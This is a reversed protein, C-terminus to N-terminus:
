DTTTTFNITADHRGIPLGNAITNVTITVPATDNVNPLTGTGGSVTLWPETVTVDYSIPGPGLNELTYVISDPVFPGGPDGVSSLSNGPTVQLGVAGPFALSPDGLLNYMEFYRRTTSGSGMQALYRMRTENWVTGVESPVNDGDDYIVDFLRKELIDDETWYSNVSSGYIAAAGKNAARSWTETFCETVTYTGTICAFSCVFPYMDANTLNNVDSQSFVPGDAWSYTGGHGSYIGFFRGDNFANRVQQTTANYTHCYLKDSVINNPDMYNSIVWNHTGESVTYNDESAMFVARKVYDPDSLPGDEYYLTKNVIAQVDGSSRVSFRGLAIDAYWDSAGDMCSYPLDTAPSGAGGGTWNPITNTDGVLLVYDPPSAGNYESEIYTKITTANVSTDVYTTVNFGQAGKATAFSAIDAAYANAVVILYNGSGRVRAQSVLDANLVVRHLGPLATLGGEPFNGGAFSVEASLRPWWTLEGAAPNYAVPRIELLCLRQGRVLGLETVVVRQIPGGADLAYAAQDFQFDANQLAGPIKPIPPQVPMLHTPLGAAALDVVVPAGEQAAVTVVAGLPAVFLRRLVPIAPAGIQGYVSADPWGVRLFRGGATESPEVTLGAVQVTVGLGDVGQSQAVMRPAAVAPREAISVSRDAEVSLWAEGAWAVTQLLFGLGIVATIMGTGLRSRAM